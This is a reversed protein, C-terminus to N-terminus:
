SRLVSCGRRRALCYDSYPVPGSRHSGRSSRRYPDGWSGFPRACDARNAARDAGRADVLGYPAITAECHRDGPCRYLVADASDLADFAM